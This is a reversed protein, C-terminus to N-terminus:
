RSVQIDLEIEETGLADTLAKKIQTRYHELLERSYVGFDGSSQEMRIAIKGDKKNLSIYGGSKVDVRGIRAFIDKHYEHIKVNSWAIVYKGNQIGVVFKNKAQMLDHYQDPEDDILDALTTIEPEANLAAAVQELYKSVREVEDPKLKKFGNSDKSLQTILESDVVFKIAHSIDDFSSSNRVMEVIIDPKDGFKHIFDKCYSLKFTGSRVLDVLREIAGSNFLKNALKGGASELNYRDSHSEDDAYALTEHYMELALDIDQVVDIVSCASTIREKCINFALKREDDNTLKKLITWDARFKEDKLLEGIVEADGVEVEKKLRDKLLDSYSLNTYTKKLIDEIRTDIPQGRMRQLDANQFLLERMRNKEDYPLNKNELKTIIEEVSIGSQRIMENLTNFTENEINAIRHAVEINEIATVEVFDGKKSIKKYKGREEEPLEDYTRFNDIKM